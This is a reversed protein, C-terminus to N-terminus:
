LLSLKPGQCKFMLWKKSYDNTKKKLKAELLSTDILLYCSVFTLEVPLM